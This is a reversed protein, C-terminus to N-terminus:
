YKQRTATEYLQDLTKRDVWASLETLITDKDKWNRMRFCIVGLMKIRIISSVLNPRQSSIWCSLMYHRGRIFMTTLISNGTAHLIHQGDAMDDVVLLVSTAYRKEGKALQAKHYATLKSSEDLIQEIRNADWSDMFFDEEKQGRKARYKVLHQWTSDWTATPSVVYVADLVKGGYLHPTTFILVM